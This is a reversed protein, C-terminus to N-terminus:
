DVNEKRSAKLTAFFSACKDTLHSIFLSLADIRSTLSQVQLQMKLSTMDLIAQVKELNAEIGRNSIVFGLFKYAEVGFICKEPNLRMGYKTLISFIISLNHVHDKTTLSKVLM